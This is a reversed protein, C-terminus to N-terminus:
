SNMNFYDLAIKEIKAILTSVEHRRARGCEFANEDCLLCKRPNMGLDQRSIHKGDSDLVDFDFLRGLDQEEEIKTTIIKMFYASVNFVGFFEPGSNKYLIREYISKVSFEKIRQNFIFLGEDFIKKIFPTFKVPGPINLKYSVITNKYRDILYKQYLVRKERSILIDELSQKEGKLHLSM